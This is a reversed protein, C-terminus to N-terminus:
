SLELCKGIPQLLPLQQVRLLSANRTDRIYQTQTSEL